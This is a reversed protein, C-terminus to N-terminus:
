RRRLLASDIETSALCKQWQDQQIPVRMAEYAKVVAIESAKCPVCYEYQSSTFGSWRIHLFPSSPELVFYLNSSRRMCSPLVAAAAIAQDGPLVVMPKLAATFGLPWHPDLSGPHSPDLPAHILDLSSGPVPCFTPFSRLLLVSSCLPSPRYKHDDLFAAPCSHV